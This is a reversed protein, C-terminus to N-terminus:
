PSWRMDGMQNPFAAGDRDRWHFRAQIPQRLEVALAYAVRWAGGADKNQYSWPTGKVPHFGSDTRKKEEINASSVQRLKFVPVHRSNACRLGAEVLENWGKCPEQGFSASDVATFRLDPPNNPQFTRENGPALTSKSSAQSSSAHPPEITGPSALPESQPPLTELLQRAEDLEIKYGRNTMLQVLVDPLSPFPPEQVLRRAEQLCELFVRKKQNLRLEQKARKEASGSTISDRGLYEKLLGAVDDLATASDLLDIMAFRKDRFEGGTQSYYLWWRQGDTIVSFAATNNRNYDRLQREVEDLQGQVHGVRKVEIFVDPIYQRSSLAFDVKTRDEQPTTVCESDVQTPDWINWGLSDLIRAVICLRVHEENRYENRRLRECIDELIAKM